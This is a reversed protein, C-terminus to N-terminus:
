STKYITMLNHSLPVQLIDKYFEGKGTIYAKPVKCPATGFEQWASEASYEGYAKIWQNRERQSLEPWTKYLHDTTELDCIRHWNKHTQCYLFAHTAAQETTYTEQSQPNM